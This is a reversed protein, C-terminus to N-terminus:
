DMNPEGLLRDTVFVVAFGLIGCIVVVLTNPEALTYNAPMVNQEVLLKADSVVEGSIILEGADSLWQEPNRWPWIKNLSGIMIGTLFAL